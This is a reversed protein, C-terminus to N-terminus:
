TCIIDAPHVLNVRKLTEIISTNEIQKQDKIVKYLNKKTSLNNRSVHYTDLIYKHFHDEPISNCVVSGYGFPLPNICNM